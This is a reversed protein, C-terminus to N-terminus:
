LYLAHCCVTEGGGVLLDICDVWHYVVTERFVGLSRKAFGSFGDFLHFASQVSFRFSVFLEVPFQRAVPCCGSSARYTDDAFQFGRGLVRFALNVFTM